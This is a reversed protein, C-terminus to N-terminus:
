EPTRSRLAAVASSRSRAGMMSAVVAPSPDLIPAV